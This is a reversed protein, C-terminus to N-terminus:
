AKDHNKQSQSAKEKQKEEPKKEQHNDEKAAGDKTPESAAQGDSKEQQPKKSEKEAALQKGKEPEPAEKNEEKKPKLKLKSAKRKPAKIIKDRVLLNHVSASLQAGQSLWYRVREAKIKRTKLRPDYFGLFEIVKGTPKRFKEQLVIRFHPDNKRGTRAFRIILM